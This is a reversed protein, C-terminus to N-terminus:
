EGIMRQVRDLSSPAQSRDGANGAIPAQCRGLRDERTRLVVDPEASSGPDIPM